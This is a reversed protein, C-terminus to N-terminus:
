QTTRPGDGLEAALVLPDFARREHISHRDVYLARPLGVQESLRWLWLLYGHADEQERFLAYPVVGTADDIGGLLTLFPQDPRLWRHRSGDAEVLLGAQPMRDRRGRHRPSRRRRPSPHGAARLIRRVTERGLVLQEEAALKETLHQDNFGAYK